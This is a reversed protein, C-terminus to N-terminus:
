FHPQLCEQSLASRGKSGGNKMKIQVIVKEKLEPPAIIGKAEEQISERVRCDLSM